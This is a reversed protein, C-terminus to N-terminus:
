CATCRCRFVSYVCWWPGCVCSGCSAQHLSSRGISLMSELLLRVQQSCDLVISLLTHTHTHTYWEFCLHCTFVRAPHCMYVCTEIPPSTCLSHIWSIPQRPNIDIVIAVIANQAVPVAQTTALEGRYQHTASRQTLRHYARLHCTRTGATIAAEALYEIGQVGTGIEDQITITIIIGLDRVNETVIVIDAVVVAAGM